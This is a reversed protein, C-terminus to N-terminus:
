ESEDAPATTKKAPEKMERVDVLYTLPAPVNTSSRIGAIQVVYKGVGQSKLQPKFIICPYMGADPCPCIAVIEATTTDIIAYHEDLTSIRIELSDASGVRFRQSNVSVSWATQDRLMEHPYFGPGPYSVYSWNWDTHRAGDFSYLTSFRGCFGFATKQMSPMLIWQRHGVREINSEDSDFMYDDISDFLNDRGESINSQSTGSYGTRYFTDEMDDPKAPKHELHGIRALLVAGYQAQMAYQSDIGMGNAPVGSLFRYLQVYKLAAQQSEDAMKGAKFPKTGSPEELMKPSKREVPSWAKWAKQVKEWALPYSLNFVLNGKEDFTVVPGTIVGARYITKMEVLGSPFNWQYPGDLQDNRYSAIENPKGAESYTTWTGTKKDASYIGRIHIEVRYRLHVTGDDFKEEVDKALAINATVQSMLLLFVFRLARTPMRIM